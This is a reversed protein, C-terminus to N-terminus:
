LIKKKKLDFESVFAIFIEKLFYNRAKSLFLIDLFGISGKLKEIMKLTIMMEVLHTKM